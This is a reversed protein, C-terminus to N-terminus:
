SKIATPQNPVTEQLLAEIEALAHQSTIGESAAWEDCVAQLAKHLLGGEISGLPKQRSEARLDRVIRCLSALSRVELQHAITHLRLQRNKSLPVPASKLLKRCGKLYNKSAIRRLVTQGKEDVPVWATARLHTVQYYPRAVAGVFWQTSFTTVTGVGHVPHVVQDGIQFQM